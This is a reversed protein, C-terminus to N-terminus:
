GRLSKELEIATRAFVLKPLVRQRAYQCWECVRQTKLFEFRRAIEEDKCTM